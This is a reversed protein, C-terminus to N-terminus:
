GNIRIEYYSARQAVEDNVQVTRSNPTGHAYLTMTGDHHDIVVYEGYSRYKGNSYKLADSIVVTGAKAAVVDTGLPIAFDVGTHGSYGNYGTTIDSKSKGLLPCIYGSNSPHVAKLNNQKAIEVLQKEIEKKDIEFQELQENLEIEEQSLNVILNNKDELLIGMADSKAEIAEKTTEVENKQQEMLGNKIGVADSYVELSQLLKNDYEALRELLYYKDLFDGLSKSSLLVDLYTTKSSEYIAILRRDIIEKQKNYNEQAIELEKKKEELKQNLEDLKENTEALNDELEKIQVNIRNIQDLSLTMKERIGAIETNTNQIKLDIEDKQNQLEEETIAYVKILGLMLVLLSILFYEIIRKINKM